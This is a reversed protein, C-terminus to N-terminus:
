PKGDGLFVSIGTKKWNGKTTKSKPINPKV